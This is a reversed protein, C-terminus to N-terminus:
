SVRARRWRVVGAVDIREAVGHRELEYCMAIVDSIPRDRSLFTGGILAGAKVAQLRARERVVSTSMFEDDLAARLAQKVSDLQPEDGPVNAHEDEVATPLDASRM